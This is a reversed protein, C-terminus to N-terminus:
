WSDVFRGSRPLEGAAPLTSALIRRTEALDHKM